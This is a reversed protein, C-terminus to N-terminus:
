RGDIGPALADVIFRQALLFMLLVPVISLLITAMLPGMAIWTGLLATTGAIFQRRNLGVM